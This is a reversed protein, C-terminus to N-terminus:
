AELGLLDVALKPQEEGPELLDVAQELPVGVLELLDAAQEPPVGVLSRTLLIFGAGHSGMSNPDSWILKIPVELFEVKSLSPPPCHHLPRSQQGLM